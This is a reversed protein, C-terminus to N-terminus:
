KTSPSVASFVRVTLLSTTIPWTHEEVKRALRESVAQSRSLAGLQGVAEEKGEVALRSCGVAKNSVSSTTTAAHQRKPVHYFPIPCRKLASM